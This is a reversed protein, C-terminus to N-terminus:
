RECQRLSPEVEQTVVARQDAAPFPLKRGPPQRSLHLLTGVSSNMKRRQSIRLASGDPLTIRDVAKIRDLKEADGPSIAAFGAPDYKQFAPVVRSKEHFLNRRVLRGRQQLPVQM